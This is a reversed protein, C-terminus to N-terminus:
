VILTKIYNKPYSNSENIDCASMLFLVKKIQILQTLVWTIVIEQHINEFNQIFLQIIFTHFSKLEAM